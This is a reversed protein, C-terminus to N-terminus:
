GQRPRPPCAPPTAETRPCICRCWAVGVYHDPIGLGATIRALLAYASARRKGQVFASIEPQSQGTLAAIATQSYGIGQLQHFVHTFDHRRLAERM